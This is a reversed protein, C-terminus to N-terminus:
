IDMIMSKITIWLQELVIKLDELVPFLINKVELTYVYMM